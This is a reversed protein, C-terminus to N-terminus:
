DRGGSRRVAADLTLSIRYLISRKDIGKGPRISLHAFRDLIREKFLKDIATLLRNDVSGAYPLQIIKVQRRGMRLVLRIIDPEPVEVALTYNDPKSEKPM